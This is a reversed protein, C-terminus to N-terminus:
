KKRGRKQGKRSKRDPRKEEARAETEKISKAQEQENRAREQVLKKCDRWSKENGGVVTETEESKSAGPITKEYDTVTKMRRKRYAQMKLQSKPRDEEDALSKPIVLGSTFPKDTYINNYVEDTARDYTVGKSSQIGAFTFVKLKPPKNEPLNHVIPPINIVIFGDKSKM